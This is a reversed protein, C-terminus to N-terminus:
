SALGARMQGARMVAEATELLVGVETDSAGQRAFKVLDCFRLFNGLREREAPPVASDRAASELFERTTQFRIKLRFRWEMFERLLDSCAIAMDYASLEGRRSKLAELRSLFEPIRDLEPLVAEVVPRSRKWLRWRRWIGLALLLGLFTLGIWVWPSEWWAPLPVLTLDEVLNTRNM